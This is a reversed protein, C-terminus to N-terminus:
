NAVRGKPLLPTAPRAIANARLIVISSCFLGLRHDRRGTDLLRSFVRALQQHVGLQSGQEPYQLLLAEGPTHEAPFPVQEGGGAIDVEEHCTSVARPHTADCFVEAEPPDRCPTVAGM